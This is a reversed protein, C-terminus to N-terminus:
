RKAAARKRRWRERAETRSCERCRRRGNPRFITNEEDFPHGNACHTRRANIASPGSGRVVVNERNTVAELHEPNVCDRQRCLHDLVLDQPIPGYAREYYVRHAREIRIGSWKRAYGYSSVNHQWIWCLTLYGCDRAVFEPTVNRGNHGHVFRIPEGKVWGKPRDNYPALRSRRGCGCECFGYPVNPQEQMPVESEPTAGGSGCVRPPMELVSDM